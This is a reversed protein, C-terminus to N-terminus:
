ITAQCAVTLKPQSKKGNQWWKKNWIDRWNCIKPGQISHIYIDYDLHIQVQTTRPQKLIDILMPPDTLKLSELENYSQGRRFVGSGATSRELSFKNVKSLSIVIYERSKWEGAAWPLGLSTLKNPYSM